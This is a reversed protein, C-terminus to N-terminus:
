IWCCWWVMRELYINMCQCSFCFLGCIAVSQRWDHTASPNFLPRRHCTGTSEPVRMTCIHQCTCISLKSTWSCRVICEMCTDHGKKQTAAATMVLSRDHVWSPRRPAFWHFLVLRKCAHCYAGSLYKKPFHAKLANHRIRGQWAGGGLWCVRMLFLSKTAPRIFPCWRNVLGSYPSIKPSTLTPYTSWGNYNKPCSKNWHKLAEENKWVDFCPKWCGLKKEFFDTKLGFIKSIQLCTYPPKWRKIQLTHNATRARTLPDDCCNQNTLRWSRPNHSGKWVAVFM